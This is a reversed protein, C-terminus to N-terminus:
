DVKIAGYIKRVFWLCAFFGISGTLMFFTISIMAMYAFYLVTPVLGEINLKSMFYWLSYLFLYAGSSGASLYSRWWWQYDENCLQFYCMVITIEACTAILIILVIFLFGFVFYLQHLWMASMIFFLEICVAGFPLIGGLAISFAPHTYWVQDPIHRAIQNTRVPVEITEKRFGFYSGVFVLPTSIGFWLLMLALLTTVPAATSSGHSAVFSNIALFIMGIVGPFFMATMLTNRKWEKGNFLKYVRASSYGAFSGMFVFLMLLTTLLGGRNDPSTLGLLACVMTALTMALIQVGSGALVSLLMPSFSPPRFVDGHVLKWGSEEQAEELTQMENYSSIDKHLTRLMIMAVVGTLFLVIMLSNVISFYHIEDDPNGKLYVDWRHSWTLQSREWKVDYTFIVEESKMEVSQFKDPNFAAPAFKNCTTLVTTDKNFNKQSDEYEHKISLPVVEFGVIRTGQFEEPSESYRIIIRVHNFLYHQPTKKKPTTAMFGVPYGRSVYGLEENRVAVPLNDLLWHVRYEQDIMHKFMEIDAKKYVKQCLVACTEDKKMRLQYPSTTVSDGALREGLNEAKSKTKRRKCFPLDYYEYQLPTKTSIVKNAKLVVADGDSFANPTVGPLYYAAQCVGALVILALLICNITM